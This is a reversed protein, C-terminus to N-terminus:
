RRISARLEGEELDSWEDSTLQLIINCNHSITVARNPTARSECMVTAFVKGSELRSTGRGRM